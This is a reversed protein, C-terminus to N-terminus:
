SDTGFSQLMADYANRARGFGAPPAVLAFDYVCGDKKLVVDTLGSIPSEIQQLTCPYPDDPPSPKYGPPLPTETPILETVTCM